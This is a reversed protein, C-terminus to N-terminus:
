FRSLSVKFQSTFMFASFGTFISNYLLLVSATLSVVTTGLLRHPPWPSMPALMRKQLKSPAFSFTQCTKTLARFADVFVLFICVM